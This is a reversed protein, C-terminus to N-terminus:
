SFLVTMDDFRKLMEAGYKGIGKRVEEISAERSVTGTKKSYFKDAYCIIKEELTLPLMDRVPLPLNRSRIDGASLGVGVHRECVLAHRPFGKKELLERGLYGHCVYDKDGYCGIDPARTLFIGIDHLMAAEKLFQLDPSPYRIKDAIELCKNLVMRSHGILMNCALSGPKYYKLIIEVPDM